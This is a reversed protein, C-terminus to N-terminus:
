KAANVSSDLEPYIELLRRKGERLADILQEVSVAPAVVDSDSYLVFELEGSDITLEGIGYLSGDTGEQVVEDTWIRIEAIHKDRHPPACIMVDVKKQM